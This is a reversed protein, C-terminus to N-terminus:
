RPPELHGGSSRHASYLTHTCPCWLTPQGQCELLAALAAAGSVLQLGARLAPRSLPRASARSPGVGESWSHSWREGEALVSWTGSWWGKCARLGSAGRCLHAGHGAGRLRHPPEGRLRGRTSPTRARGLDPTDGGCLSPGEPVLEKQQKRCGGPQRARRSGDGRWGQGQRCLPDCLGRM